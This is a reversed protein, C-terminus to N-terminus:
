QGTVVGLNTTRGESVETEQEWVRDQGYFELRVRCGEQKLGRFYLVLEGREDTRTEVVPLLLTKAGCESELPQGLKFRGEEKLAGTIQIYGFEEGSKEKLLFTDNASIIGSVNAVGIERGGEGCGERSVRARACNDSLTVARVRVGAAPRSGSERLNGRILAAGEPFPYFPQPKVSVFLV